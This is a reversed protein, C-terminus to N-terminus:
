IALEEILKTTKIIANQKAEELTVGEGDVIVLEYTEMNLESKDVKSIAASFKLHIHYSM